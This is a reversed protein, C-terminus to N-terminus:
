RPRILYISVDFAPNWIDIGQAATIVSTTTPNFFPEKLNAEDQVELGRVQTVEIGPRLEIKIDKGSMIALDISTCPAAVIFPIKHYKACIAM